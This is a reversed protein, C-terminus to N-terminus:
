AFDQIRGQDASQLVRAPPLIVNTKMTLLNSPSLLDLDDPYSSAFTLPRSNIITEVDCLRTRFYEDDLRFGHGHLLVTLLKHTTHIQWEWIVGMHSGSPPNIIRDTGHLRSRIQENEIEDVTQQLETKAGVFKTWNNSRIERIPGCRAIFRRLAQNFSDAELYNTTKIHVARSTLWTFLCGYWKLEKQGEKIM